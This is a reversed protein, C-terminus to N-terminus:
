FETLLIHTYEGTPEGVKSLVAELSQELAYIQTRIKPCDEVRLVHNLQLILSHM